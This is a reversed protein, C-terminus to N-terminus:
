RRRRRLAFLLLGLWVLGAPSRQADCTCGVPEPEEVISTGGDGSPPPEGAEPSPGAESPGAESPPGVEERPGADSPEAGPPGMEPLDPPSADIPADEYICQATGDEGVVCREGPPCEVGECPDGACAGDVCAQGESCGDGCGDDV